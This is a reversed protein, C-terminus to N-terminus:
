GPPSPLNPTGANLDGANEPSLAIVMLSAGGATKSLLWPSLKSLALRLPYIIRGILTKSESPALFTFTYRYDVIRLGALTLLNLAYVADMFILHGPKKLKQRFLDRSATNLSYDLPIHFAMLGARSAVQRIFELPAPVHEIVDFLTVLDFQDPSQRFDGHIYEVGDNKLKLVHPSVDYGRVRKLNFGLSRLGKAIGAVSDGSGCGIDAYSEVRPRSESIVREFLDLFAAVKFASDESHRTPDTFYDGGTYISAAKFNDPTVSEPKKM